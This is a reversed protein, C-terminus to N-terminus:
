RVFAIPHNGLRWFDQGYSVVISDDMHCDNLTAFDKGTNLLFTTLTDHEYHKLCQQLEVETANPLFYVPDGHVYASNFYRAYDRIHLACVQASSEMLIDFLDLDPQDAVGLSFKFRALASIVITSADFRIAALNNERVHYGAVRPQSRFSEFTDYAIPYDLDDCNFDGAVLVSSHMVINSLYVIAPFTFDL